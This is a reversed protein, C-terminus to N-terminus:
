KYQSAMECLRKVIAQRIMPMPGSKGRAWRLVTSFSVALENAAQWVAMEGFMLFEAVVLDFPDKSETTWDQYKEVFKRDNGAPSKSM